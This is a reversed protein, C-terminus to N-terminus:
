HKQKSIGNTAVEKQAIIESPNLRFRFQVTTGSAASSEIECEGGINEMRRKMNVLGYGASDAASDFGCGDDHISVTLLMEEFSIRVTVQGAKAHKIVNHMAERTAMSINHRIRSSIEIDKPLPSVHLRCRLRAQTCQNNISQRLYNGMAELNDNEPNVAWVTENLAAVLDRAKLTIRSFEERAQESFSHNSEAMGSVLSIETVRAGLDDHIDQAIRLRERELARQQELRLMTRRMKQAALYRVSAISSAVTLAAMAAWFWAAQWFPQQVVVTLSDEQGTPDGLLSVKAVRFTYTGPPLRDYTVVHDMSAGISYMENWEVSLEEEPQVRAAIERANHWEAHSMPDDDLVALSKTKPNEGVDLIKAMSPRTGDREWGAPAQNPAAGKGLEEASPSRLLVVPANTASPLAVVFDSVAYIGVTTPGGASSLVMWLRTADHPVTLKEMRHTFTSHELTGKWGRSEGHAEFVKQGVLDGATNYFRITVFMEGGYEHCEHDIGDLKTRYRIGKEASNTPVGIHFTTTRPLTGLSVELGSVQPLSKNDVEVGQIASKNAGRDDARLYAQNGLFCLLASLLVTKSAVRSIMSHTKDSGHKQRLISDSMVLRKAM